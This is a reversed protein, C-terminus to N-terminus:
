HHFLFPIPLRASFGTFQSTKANKNKIKKKLQQKPFNYSAHELQFGVIPLHFSSRCYFCNVACLWPDATLLIEFHVFVSEFRSTKAIAEYNM